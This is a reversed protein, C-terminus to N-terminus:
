KFWTLNLFLKNKTQGMQSGKNRKEEIMFYCAIVSM